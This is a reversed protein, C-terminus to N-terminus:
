AVLICFSECNITVFRQFLRHNESDLNLKITFASFVQLSEIDSPAYHEQTSRCDIAEVKLWLIM